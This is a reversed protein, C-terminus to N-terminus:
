NLLHDPRRYYRALRRAHIPRCSLRCHQSCLEYRSHNANKVTCPGYYKSTLPPWNVTTRLVDGLCVLVKERVQFTETSKHSPSKTHHDHRKARLSVPAPLEIQRQALTLPPLMWQVSDLRIAMFYSWRPVDKLLAVDEIDTCSKQYVKTGNEHM